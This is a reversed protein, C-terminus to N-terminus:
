RRVHRVLGALGAGFIVAALAGGVLQKPLPDPPPPPVDIVGRKDTRAPRRAYRGRTPPRFRRAFQHLRAAAGDTVPRGHGAAVTQPNLDALREVSRQMAPWDPTFPIPPPSIRRTWTAQARWSTLDTTALADGAVLTRDEERFLSVHGPTHGPTHLWRWEPLGPVGGDEPLAQIRGSLDFGTDPLLRAFVGMAGGVTPDKPPYDSRGTLFPLEREHAYLPADWAEALAQAGGAHDVHGHTLIIAEPRAGDGFHREMARRVYGGTGPLGTDILVWAGEAGRVAYVNVFVVGLRWLRPAVPALVDSSM